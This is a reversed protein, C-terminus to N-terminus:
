HGGGQARGSEVASAGKYNVVFAEIGRYFALNDTVLKLMTQSESMNQDKRLLVSELQILYDGTGILKSVAYPRQISAYKGDIAQNDVPSIGTDLIIGKQAIQAYVFIVKVLTTGDNRLFYFEYKSPDTIPGRFADSERKELLLDNPFAVFQRSLPGEPTIKTYHDVHFSTHFSEITEVFSDYSFSNSRNDIYLYIGGVVLLAGLIAACLIMVNTKM